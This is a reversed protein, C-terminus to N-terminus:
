LFKLLRLIEVARKPNGRGIPFYCPIVNTKIKGVNIEFCGAKKTQMVEDYYDSLKIKQKVLNEFPLLGFTVVYEPKVIELEKELVPLFLRIKESDPLTADHGTWKVLNTFYFNKNKLFNLVKETFDVSWTSNNNIEIMLKEDFLGANYFVRWVQKTGVFPFRPGNWNKDSSINRATPNIFVFLFKPKSTKGDGLIPMLKNESFHKKNLVSVHKWLDTLSNCDNLM